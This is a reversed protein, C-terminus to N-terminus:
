EETEDNIVRTVTGDENIQYGDQEILYQVEEKKSAPVANFNKGEQECQRAYIKAIASIKM